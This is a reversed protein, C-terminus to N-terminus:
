HPGRLPDAGHGWLRTAGLVLLALMFWHSPAGGGGSGSGSSAPPPPPVPAATVTLTAKSSTVSGLANTVGVTYDGADSTRVATLTLTSGTAGSIATNGLSWQYTPAPNSGATVSFTVNNGSVVTQGQPHATIVPGTALLGKRVTTGSSVYLAGTADVAIGSPFYFRADRGAGDTSGPTEALGAVTTVAGQPTVKRVTQNYSEAIFLNGSTDAAVSCPNHFRASTVNGDVYGHEAGALTTVSGSPLIKRIRAIAPGDPPETVYVIGGADVTIGYPATFRANGGIGDASGMQLASGALTTVDGAPTIKRIIENSTDTVYLNGAADVAIGRPYWFQAAAGQGDLYGYAGATGAFTSVDGTPSVRRITHNGSDAVFVAGAADVAIGAPASFRAATGTGDASGSEGPAGALTTVVGAPTIKRICHASSDAVYINGNADVATGTPATFRAAAGTGDLTGTATELAVGAFTTVTGTTSLRRIDNNGTDAVYLTGNRDSALALPFGFKASVAPGDSGGITGDGAVTAFTGDAPSYRFLNYGGAVLLRGGADFALSSAGSRTVRGGFYRYDSTQWLNTRTGDPTIRTVFGVYQFYNDTWNVAHTQENRFEFRSVYVNNAADVAIAGYAVSLVSGLDGTEPFWVGIAFTTVAGAPTIKRVAHNGAETVYLNGAADLALKRPRDFRAAGGTGDTNGTVGALGALTTVVGAPTIKRITHNGTDTIYLNAAADAVIGQPSDFRAADGTGDASGPLGATGAFTTVAGAPTIKRVTHNGEDVIFINGALDTAIDKPSYFRAAAGTGDTSGISSTGALTTFVYPTAYDAAGRACLAAALSLILTCPLALVSTKM